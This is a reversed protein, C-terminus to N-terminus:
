RLEFVYLRAEEDSVIYLRKNDPNYAIGEAKIIERYEGNKTYALSFSKLVKDKDLDYLFVRKAKDSVILFIKSSTSYLCIGSYDIKKNKIDDDVFGNKENLRKHCKIIELDNSIEVLLGPADEKLLFLSEQYSTIGELGKNDHKDFYKAIHGYGKMSKIKRTKNIQGNTIAVITNKDESVAYLVGQDDITIGELDDDEIEITVDGKLNGNLDVQFINKKDDSVVWLADKDKTLVIGSPENLGASKYKISMRKLYMLNLNSLDSTM